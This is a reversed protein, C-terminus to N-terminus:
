LAGGDGSSATNDFFSSSYVSVAGDNAYIAGGEAAVHDEMVVNLFSLDALSSMAAVAGGRGTTGVTNASFVSGSALVYGVGFAYLGGGDGSAGNSALTSTDVSAGGGVVHFAGGDGNSFNGRLDSTSVSLYSDQTSACGGAAAFNGSCDTTLLTLFSSGTAHIAGGVGSALNTELASSRVTLSEGDAFIAGGRDGALNQVFSAGFVLQGVGGGSAHRLHIAGGDGLTTRNALWTGGAVVLASQVLQVGGGDTDAHNDLFLGDTLTLQIGDGYIGGGFDSGNSILRDDTHAITGPDPDVSSAWVAGGAVSATNRRWSTNTSTYTAAPCASTGEVFMGGGRAGDNEEVLSDVIALPTTGSTGNAHIGGGDATGGNHHVWVRRFTGGACDLAVGHDTAGTIWVDEVVPALGAAVELGVSGGSLTFGSLSVGSASWSGVFRVPSGTAGTITTAAPGATGVLRVDRDVVVDEAWVGPGVEVVDGPSAALVAAAITSHTGPVTLTAAQVSPLLSLIM